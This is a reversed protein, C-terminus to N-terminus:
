HHIWGMYGYGEIDDDSIDDTQMTSELLDGNLCGLHSFAPVPKAAMDYDHPLTQEAPMLYSQYEEYVVGYSKMATAYDHRCSQIMSSSIESICGSFSSPASLMQAAGNRLANADTKVRHEISSDASMINDGNSM